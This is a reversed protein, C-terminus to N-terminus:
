NAITSASISYTTEFPHEADIQIATPTGADAIPNAHMSVGSGLSFASCVPEVGLAVTRGNWPPTAIARNSLWLLLSPFQRCNWDLTVRYAEVPYDLSCCGEIGTLQLIDENPTNFPFRTADLNHGERGPVCALDRFWRDRAFVQSAGLPGPFTWGMAFKRPRVIVPGGVVGFTFHLGIPLRTLRRARVTLSLEIAPANPIARIRRTLSEIDDHDPYVCMLELESTSLQTFYWDANSGYGHLATQNTVANLAAAWAPSFGDPDPPAGFPVCPWEGRLKAIVGPVASDRVDAIWPALFLPSTPRGNELVFTLPALMGGFRQVTLAGFQWGIGCYDPQAVDKSSPISAVDSV